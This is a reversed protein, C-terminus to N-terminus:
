APEYHITAAVNYRSLMKEAEDVLQHARRFDRERVRVTIVAAYEGPLVPRVEVRVPELGLRRLVEEIRETLSEPAREVLIETLQKVHEYLEYYLYALLLWAGLYDYIPSWLSGALASAVTVIGEYIESMSFLAYARGAAGARMSLWIAIAYFGTGAAVYVVAERAVHYEPTTMLLAALAYGAVIAYVITVWLIGAVEFRKSVSSLLSARITLIAAAVSAICTLMDVFAAKSGAFAGFSKIVTGLAVLALIAYLRKM